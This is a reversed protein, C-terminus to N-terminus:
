NVLELFQRLRAGAGNAAVFQEIGSQMEGFRSALSDIQASADVGNMRVVFPAEMFNPLAPLSSILLPFGRALLQLAKNSLTIADVEPDHARYPIFGALIRDTPLEDLEAAPAVEINGASGLLAAHHVHSPQVPGVFLMRIHPRAAALKNAFGRVAAFDIRQNLYGWFLLTDRACDRKPARYECDAWPLFLEPDCCVSLQDRLPVSVTLVRDSSSCTRTMAWLLPKRYGFLAVSLFDDNIITVIRNKPFASRLFFYDFNFNVIVDHENAGLRALPSRLSREVVCANAEHLARALRLKHHLLHRHPVVTIRGEQTGPGAKRWPYQPKEFFIVENGADALLRALQHRLRPPEQWQTKTFFLYRAM